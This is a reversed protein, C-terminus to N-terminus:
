GTLAPLWEGSIIMVVKVILVGCIGALEGWFAVVEQSNQPRM